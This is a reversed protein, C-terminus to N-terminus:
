ALPARADDIVVERPAAMVVSLLTRSFLCKQRIALM